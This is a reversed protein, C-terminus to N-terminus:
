FLLIGFSLNLKGAATVAAVDFDVDICTLGLVCLEALSLVGLNAGPGRVSYEAVDEAAVVTLFHVTTCHMTLRVNLRTCLRQQCHNCPRNCQLLGIDVDLGIRVLHVKVSSGVVLSNMLQGALERTSSAVTM